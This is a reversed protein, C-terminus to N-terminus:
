IFRALHEEKLNRGLRARLTETGRRLHTKVTGQSVALLSAVETESLGLLYRLVIVERQRRPLAQLGACLAQRIVIDDAPDSTEFVRPLEDRPRPLRRIAENAAVRLVWADRWSKPGIRSWRCHAKALAEIAADEAAGRDGTVRLAVRVAKPFVARFFGEFEVIVTEDTRSVTPQSGMVRKVREPMAKSSLLKKARRAAGPLVV